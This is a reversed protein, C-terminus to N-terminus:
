IYREERAEGFGIYLTVLTYTEGMFLKTVGM